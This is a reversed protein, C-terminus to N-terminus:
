IEEGTLNKYELTYREKEEESLTEPENRLKNFLFHIRAGIEANYNLGEESLKLNVPEQDKKGFLNINLKLKGNNEFLKDYNISNEIMVQPWMMNEKIFLSIFLSVKESISADKLSEKFAERHSKNPWQFSKKMKCHKSNKVYNDIWQKCRYQEGAPVARNLECIYNSRHYFLGDTAHITKKVKCNKLGQKKAYDFLYAKLENFRKFQDADKEVREEDLSKHIM